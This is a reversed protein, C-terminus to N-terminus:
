VTAIFQWNLLKCMEKWTKDHKFLKESSKLLPLYQLYDDEGLLQMFKYLVYSYSLFNKREPPKCIEFPGQIQAFMTKLKRELEPPILKASQGGLERCIQYSHEYLKNMGLKKLYGRVRLQTVDDPSTMRAKVFEDRVRDIVYQDIETNENGQLSALWEGFHNSRKYHFRTEITSREYDSPTPAFPMDMDCADEWMRGCTDCVMSHGTNMLYGGCNECSYLREKNERISSQLTEMYDDEDGDGIDCKFRALITKANRDVVDEVMSSVGRGKRKTPKTTEQVEERVGESDKVYEQIHQFGNLLFEIKEDDNMKELNKKVYGEFTKSAANDVRRPAKKRDTTKKKWELLEV